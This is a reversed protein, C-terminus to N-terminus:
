KPAATIGALELMEKVLPSTDSSLLLLDGDEVLNTRKIDLLILQEWDEWADEDHWAMIEDQASDCLIGAEKPRDNWFDIEDKTIKDEIDIMLSTLSGSSHEAYFQEMQFVGGGSYGGLAGALSGNKM